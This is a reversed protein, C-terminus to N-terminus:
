VAKKCTRSNHGQERCRTCRSRAQRSGGLRAEGERTEENLQEEVDKQAIIEAGEAKTLTGECQIRKRKRQKRQTAAENARRLDKVETRLM